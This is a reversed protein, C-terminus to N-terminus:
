SSVTRRGARWGLVVGALGVALALLSLFLALGAPEGTTEADHGHGDAAATDAAADSAAATGGDAAATLSLVPAPSEPEAEGDVTPEIWASETGDSYTQVVPYSLRDADPFPGGSLAFEQFQGPAIGGGADARFEVVSVYDSIEQGHVTVPEDLTASTTSVTWGPLPQTQVSALAADAPISIRLAVTSATDSENPVRFVLKGYGGAAADASSVTVHASASSAVVVSAVLAALVAALVVGARALPRLSTLSM